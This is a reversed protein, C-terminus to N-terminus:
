PAISLDRELGGVGMFFPCKQDLCHFVTSAPFAVSNNGESLWRLPSSIAPQNSANFGIM